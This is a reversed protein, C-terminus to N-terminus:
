HTLEAVPQPPVSQRAPARRPNRPLGFLAILAGALAIAAAAWFAVSFGSVLARHLADPAHGLVRLQGNTQSTAVAALVALGLAGGFMRSTNVIGSALGAERPDVGAVAAITGTVFSFGIGFATFLSALLVNSV